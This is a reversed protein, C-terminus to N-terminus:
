KASVKHMWWMTIAYLVFMIQKTRILPLKILSADVWNVIRVGLSVLFNGLSYPFCVPNLIFNDTESDWVNFKVIELNELHKLYLYLPSIVFVNSIYQKWHKWKRSCSHVCLSQRVDGKQNLPSIILISSSTFAWLLIWSCSWCLSRGKFKWHWNKRHSQRYRMCSEQLQHPFHERNGEM